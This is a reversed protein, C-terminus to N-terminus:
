KPRPRHNNTTPQRDEFLPQQKFDAINRHTQHTIPGIHPHAIRLTNLITGLYDTINQAALQRGIGHNAGCCICNCIETTANYCNADCRGLLTSAKYVKLLTTM